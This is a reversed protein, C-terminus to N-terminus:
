SAWARSARRRLQTGRYRETEWGTDDDGDVVIAADDLERATAPPPDVIRVQDARSRSRSPCPPPRRGAATPAPRRAGPRTAPRREPQRRDDDGLLATIGLIM